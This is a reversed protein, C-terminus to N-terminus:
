IKDVQWKHTKCKESKNDDTTDLVSRNSYSFQESFQCRHEGELVHEVNRLAPHTPENQASVCNKCFGGMQGTTPEFAAPPNKHVDHVGIKHDLMATQQDVTFVLATHKDETHRELDPCKM